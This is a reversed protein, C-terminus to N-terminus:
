THAIGKIGLLITDIGLLTDITIMTDITDRLEIKDHQKVGLNRLKWCMVARKIFKCTSM